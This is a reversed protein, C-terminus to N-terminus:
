RTALFAFVAVVLLPVFGLAVYARQKRSLRSPTDKARAILWTGQRAQPDGGGGGV